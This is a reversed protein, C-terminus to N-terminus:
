EETVVYVSNSIEGNERTKKLKDILSETLVTKHPLLLRGAKSYIARTIIMGKKLEHVAVQKRDSFRDNNDKLIDLFVKVVDPDFKTFANKKIYHIAAQGAIEPDESEERTIKNKNIYDKLIIDTNLRINAIWDYSDTIAIIRSGIPIDNEKLHDPFGEGDYKEHHHRIILGVDDLRNIFALIHQGEEPHKNYTTAEEQSWNPEDYKELLKWSFGIKGIDHLIAAIEIHTIENESLDLREAIAISYTRVRKGHGKLIPIHIDTLEAFARVTNLLNLELEKNLFELEKNKELLEGSRARVKQEMNKGFEYLQKNQKQTLALLRKNEAKLEYQELAQNVQLVLDEDNWPKNLYRHIEGKNVAEIVANMDSYGTLLFRIADPCIMKAKELFESGTMGPMRQDSIILSVPHEQAKLLELADKGGSATLINSSYKRFLRKLSNLISAEDDVFLITHHYETTM